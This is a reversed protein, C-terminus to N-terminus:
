LSHSVVATRMQTHMRKHDVQPIIETPYMEPPPCAQDSPMFLEGNIAGRNLNKGVTQSLAM